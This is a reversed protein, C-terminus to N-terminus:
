FLKAAPFGISVGFARQFYPTEDIKEQASIYNIEAFFASSGYRIWVNDYAKGNIPPFLFAGVSANYGKIFADNFIVEVGQPVGPRIFYQGRAQFGIMHLGLLLNVAIRRDLTRNNELNLYFGFDTYYNSNLATAGFAVIRTLETIFYSGYVTVIASYKSEDQGGGFMSYSYPGIGMGVSFFHLPDPVNFELAVEHNSEKLTLTRSAGGLKFTWVSPLTWPTGVGGVEIVPPAHDWFVLIELSASRDPQSEVAVMRCGVYMWERDSHVPVSSTRMRYPSCSPDFFVRERPANPRPKFEVILLSKREQGSQVYTVEIKNRSGSILAVPVEGRVGTGSEQLIQSYDGTMVRAHSTNELVLSMKARPIVLFDAVRVWELSGSLLKVKSSAPSAGDWAITFDEAEFSSPAFATPVSESLVVSTLDKPLLHIYAFAKNSLM